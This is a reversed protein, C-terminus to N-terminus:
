LLNLNAFDIGARLVRLCNQGPNAGGSKDIKYLEACPRLMKDIGSKQRRKNGCSCVPM